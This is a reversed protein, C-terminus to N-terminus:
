VARPLRRRGRKVAGRAEVRQQVSSRTLYTRDASDGELDCTLHIGIWDRVTRPTVALLEAAESVTVARRRLATVRDLERHIADAVCESLMFCGSVEDKLPRLGLRDLLRYLQTYTFGVDDALEDLTQMGAYRELFLSLDAPDVIWEQYGGATRRKRGPILNTQVRRRTATESLGIHVAVEAVTLGPRDQQYLGAQELIDQAQDLHVYLSHQRGFAPMRDTPTFIDGIEAQM